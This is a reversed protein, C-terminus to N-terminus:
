FEWVLVNQAAVSARGFLQGTYGDMLCDEDQPWLIGFAAVGPDVEALSVPGQGAPYALYAMQRAPNFDLIMTTATGVNVTRPLIGTTIAPGTTVRTRGNYDGAAYRWIRNIYDWLFNKSINVGVPSLTIDPSNNDGIPDLVTRYFYPDNSKAM